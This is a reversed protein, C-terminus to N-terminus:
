ESCFIAESGECRMWADDTSQKASQGCLPSATPLRPDCEQQLDAIDTCFRASIRVRHKTMTASVADFGNIWTYDLWTVEFIPAGEASKGNRGVVARRTGVGDVMANTWAVVFPRAAHASELVCKRVSARCGEDCVGDTLPQGCGRTTSPPGFTAIAGEMSCGASSAETSVALPSRPPAPAPDCGQVLTLVAAGVVGGVATGSSVTM